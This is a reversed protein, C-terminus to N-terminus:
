RQEGRPGAISLWPSSAASNPGTMSMRIQIAKSAMVATHSTVAARALLRSVQGCSTCRIVSNSQIDIGKRLKM